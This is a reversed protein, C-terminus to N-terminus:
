EFPPLGDEELPEKLAASFAITVLGVPTVDQVWFQTNRLEKYQEVNNLVFTREFKKVIVPPEVVKLEIIKRTFLMGDTENYLNVWIPYDLPPDEFTPAFFFTITQTWYNISYNGFFHSRFLDVKVGWPDGEYDYMDIPIELTSNQAVEYEWQDHLFVPNLNDLNLYGPEDGLEVYKITLNLIDSEVYSELSWDIYAQFHLTVNTDILDEPHDWTQGSIKIYNQDVYYTENLSYFFRINEPFEHREFVPNSQNPKESIEIWTRVKKNYRCDVTTMMFEPVDIEM